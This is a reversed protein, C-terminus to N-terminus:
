PVQVVLSIIQYMESHSMRPFDLITRFDKTLPTHFSQALLVLMLRCVLHPSPSYQGSLQFSSLISPNHFHDPLQFPLQACRSLLFCSQKKWCKLCSASFISFPSHYLMCFNIFCVSISNRATTTITKKKELHQLSLTATNTHPNINLM